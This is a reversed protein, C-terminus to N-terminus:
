DETIWTKKKGVEKLKDEVQSLRTRALEVGRDRDNHESKRTKFSQLKSNLDSYRKNYEQYSAHEGEGELLWDEEKMLRTQLDDSESSAVYPNNIDDNLWDRLSYIVSEFDNKAKDTKM